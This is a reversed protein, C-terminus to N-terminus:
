MTGVIGRLVANMEAATPKDLRARRSLDEAREGAVRKAVLARAQAATAELKTNQEKMAVNEANLRLVADRMTQNVTNARNVALDAATVLNGLSELKIEAVDRATSLYQCRWALGALTFCLVAFVIVKVGIRAAAAEVDAVPFISM